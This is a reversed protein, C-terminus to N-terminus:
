IQYAGPAIAAATTGPTWALMGLGDVTAESRRVGGVIDISMEAAVTRATCAFAFADRQEPTGATGSADLHRREVPLPQGIAWAPDTESYRRVTRGSRAILWDSEDGYETLSFAHAEGYRESLREVLRRVEAGREGSQPDCWGGAVVTWGNLQPTVFLLGGPGAIDDSVVTDALVFTAPRAPILGLAAMIGRQDGGRVCIWADWCLSVNLFPEVPAKIRVLREAAALDAPDLGAEGVINVLVELAAARLRGPGQRRIRRLTPVLAPGRQILRGLLTRYESEPRGRLGSLEVEVDAGSDTM